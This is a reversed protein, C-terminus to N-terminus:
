KSKIMGGKFVSAIEGNLPMLTFPCPLISLVMSLVLHYSSTLGAEESVSQGM